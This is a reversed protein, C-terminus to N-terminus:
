VVLLVLQVLVILHVPANNIMLLFLVTPIKMWYAAPPRYTLDFYQNYSAKSYDVRFAYYQGAILFARGVSETSTYSSTVDVVIKHDIWIRGWSAASVKFSYWGTQRALLYGTWSVSWYTNLNPYYTADIVTTDTSFKEAFLTQFSPDNYIKTYLYGARLTSNGNSNCSGVPISCDSGTYGPECRCINEGTCCGHVCPTTCVVDHLFNNAPIPEFSSFASTRWSIKMTYDSHYTRVAEIKIRYNQSATLSFAHSDGTVRVNNIYVNCGDAVCNFNYTGTTWPRIFGTLVASFIRGDVLPLLGIDTRTFWNFDLVVARSVLEDFTTSKYFVIQLGPQYTQNKNCVDYACDPGVHNSDCVCVNNICSGHGSCQGDGVCGSLACDTFNSYGVKCTCQGDNCTGQGSCENIESSRSLDFCNDNDRCEVSRCRLLECAPGDYIANCACMGNM